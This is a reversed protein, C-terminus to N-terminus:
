CRIYTGIAWFIFLSSLHPLREAHVYRIFQKHAMGSEDWERCSLLILDVIYYNMDYLINLDNTFIIGFMRPAGDVQLCRVM